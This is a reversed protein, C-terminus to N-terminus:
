YSRKQPVGKFYWGSNMSIENDDYVFLFEAVSSLIRGRDRNLFFNGMLSNCHLCGNSLYASETTNSYRKLIAGIGFRALEQNSVNRAVLEPINRDLFSM